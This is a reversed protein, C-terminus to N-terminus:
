MLLNFRITHIWSQAKELVIQFKKKSSCFKLKLQRFSFTKTAHLPSLNILGSKSEKLSINQYTLTRLHMKEIFVRILYRWKIYVQLCLISVISLFLDFTQSFFSLSYRVIMFGMWCKALLNWWQRKNWQRSSHLFPNSQRLFYATTKDGILEKFFNETSYIYFFSTIQYRM